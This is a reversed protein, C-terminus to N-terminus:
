LARLSKKAEENAPDLRLAAHFAARAADKRGRHAEIQGLRWWAATDDPDNEHRVLSGDLVAKLAAAGVGLHDGSLAAIRGLQYRPTALTPQESAWRQFWALADDWREFGQLALGVGLRAEHDDPKAAAMAADLSKRAAADDKNSRDLGMQALHGRALNRRMIEAVQTRAKDIGDGAIPPAQLYFQILATRADFLNPDLRVATEFADRLDPAMAMKRLMNVQGIRMGLSNGLWYHAQPNQPALEVAEEASDIADDAQGKQLQARALVIWAEANGEQAEVLAEAQALASPDRKKVLADVEAPTAAQAGTAMFALAIALPLRRLASIRM